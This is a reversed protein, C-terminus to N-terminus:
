IHILSLLQDELDSAESQADLLEAQSNRLDASATGWLVGFTVAAAIALASVGGAVLTGASPRRAGSPPSIPLSNDVAVEAISETDSM